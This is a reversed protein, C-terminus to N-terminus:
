VPIRVAHGREVLWDAVNIRGEAVASDTTVLWVEALWRAFSREETGARNRRTVVQLPWPATERRILNHLLQTAVAGAPTNREAADIGLLRVTATYSASFGLDILLELTDADVARILAARYRFLGDNFAAAESM